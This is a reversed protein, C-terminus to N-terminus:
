RTPAFSTDLSVPLWEDLERTVHALKKRIHAVAPEGLPLRLPPTAADAAAMIARAAGDPDGPQQGDTDALMQRFKGITEAYAALPPEYVLSGEKRFDTRFPGPEVITVKIGFPAVEGALAESMGEVAFKTASYFCFGPVGAFGTQSSVNIIHGRKRERLHPLVARTVRYVGYVNTDFADRVSAEDTEELAGVTGFGANNVVIDLGGSWAIADRVAQTVSAADTVDLRLTKVQAGFAETLDALTEPKRATAVVRDGAALVRRCLAKGIGSSCGTILWSRPTQSAQQM